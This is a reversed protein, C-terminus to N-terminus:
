FALQIAFNVDSHDESNVFVFFAIDSNTNYNHICDLEHNLILDVTNQELMPLLVQWNENAFYSYLDNDEDYSNFNDYEALEISGSVVVDDFCNGNVTPLCALDDDLQITTETQWVLIRKPGGVDSISNSKSNNSNNYWGFDVFKGIDVIDLEDNQTPKEELVIENEKECSM